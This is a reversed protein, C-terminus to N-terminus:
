FIALIHRVGGQAGGFFTQGGEITGFFFPKVGREGYIKKDFLVIDIYLVHM